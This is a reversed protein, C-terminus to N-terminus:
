YREIQEGRLLRRMEAPRIKRTRNRPPDRRAIGHGTCYIYGKNEIMTVPEYCDDRMECKLTVGVEDYRAMTASM